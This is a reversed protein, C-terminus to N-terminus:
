SCKTTSVKKFCSKPIDKKSLLNKWFKQCKKELKKLNKVGKKKSKQPSKKQIKLIKVWKKSKFADIDSNKSCTQVTEHGMVCEFGTM